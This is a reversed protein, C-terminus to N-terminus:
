QSSSLDISLNWSDGNNVASSPIQTSSMGTNKFNISTQGPVYPWLNWQALFHVQIESQFWEMRVWSQPNGCDDPTPLVFNSTWSTAKLYYDYNTKWNTNSESFHMRLCIFNGSSLTFLLYLHCQCSRRVTQERRSDSVHLLWCTIVREKLM